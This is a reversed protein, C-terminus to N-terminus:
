AWDEAFDDRNSLGNPLFLRPERKSFVRDAKGPGALTLTACERRV